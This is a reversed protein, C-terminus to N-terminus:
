LRGRKAAETGRGAAARRGSSSASPTSGDVDQKCPLHEALQAVGARGRVQPYCLRQGLAVASARRAAPLTGPL